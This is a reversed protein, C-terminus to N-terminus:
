HSGEDIPTIKASLLKNRKQNHMSLVGLLLKHTSRPSEDKFSEMLVFFIAVMFDIMM